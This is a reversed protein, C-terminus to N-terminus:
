DISKAATAASKAAAPRKLVAKKKEKAVAIALNSVETDQRSGDPWTVLLFGDPGPEVEGHVVATSGPVQVAMKEAESDWWSPLLRYNIAAEQSSQVEVAPEAPILPQPPDASPVSQLDLLNFSTDSTQVVEVESESCSGLEAEPELLGEFIMAYVGEPRPLNRQVHSPRQANRLKKLLDSFAALLNQSLLRKESVSLNKVIIADQVVKATLSRTFQLISKFLPAWKSHIAEYTVGQFSDPRM